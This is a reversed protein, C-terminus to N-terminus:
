RSRSSSRPAPLAQSAVEIYVWEAASGTSIVEVPVRVTTEPGTTTSIQRVGPRTTAPEAGRFQWVAVAPSAMLLGFFWRNM